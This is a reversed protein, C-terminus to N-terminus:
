PLTNGFSHTFLALEAICSVMGLVLLFLLILWLLGYTKM